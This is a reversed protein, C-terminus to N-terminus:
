LTFWEELFSAGPSLPSSPVFGPSSSNRPSGASHYRLQNSAQMSAVPSTDSCLSPSDWQFAPVPSLTSRASMSPSRPPPSNQHAYYPRAATLIFASEPYEETWVRGLTEKKANKIRSFRSIWEEWEKKSLFLSYRTNSLFEIECVHMTAVDIGTVEAWARMTYTDDDLFKHAVMFAQAMLRYESNVRGRVTPCRIRLSNIYALALICVNATLRTTTMVATTWKCFAATGYLLGPEGSWAMSFLLGAMILYEDERHTLNSFKVEAIQKGATELGSGSDFPDLQANITYYSGIQVQAQGTSPLIRVLEETESTDVVTTNKPLVSELSHPTIPNSLETYSANDFYSAPTICQIYPPTMKMILKQKLISSLPMNEPAEYKEKFYREIKHAPVRRSHVFFESDKDEERKRKLLKRAVVKMDKEKINKDIGWASIKRKYQRETAIFEHELAMITVIERLPRNEDVYLRTFTERHSEWEVATFEAKPM